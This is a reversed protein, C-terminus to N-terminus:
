SSLDERCTVPDFSMKSCSPISLQTPYDIEHVHNRFRVRRKKIPSRTVQDDSADSFLGPLEDPFGEDYIVNQVVAAEGLRSNDRCRSPHNGRRKSRM